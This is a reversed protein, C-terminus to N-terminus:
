VADFPLLENVNHVLHKETIRRLELRETFLAVVFQLSLALLVHHSCDTTVLSQLDDLPLLINRVGTPRKRMVDPPVICTALEVSELVSDLLQTLVVSLMDFSDFPM